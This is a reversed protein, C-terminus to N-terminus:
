HEGPVHGGSRDGHQRRLWALAPFTLVALGAVAEACCAHMSVYVCRLFSLLGEEPLMTKLLDAQGMSFTIDILVPQLHLTGFYLKQTAFSRPYAHDNAHPTHRLPTHPVCRHRRLRSPLLRTAVCCSPRSSCRTPLQPARRWGWGTGVGGSGMALVLVLVLVLVLM